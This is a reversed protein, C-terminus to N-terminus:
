PCFWAVPSISGPLSITTTSNEVLWRIAWSTKDAFASSPTAPFAGNGTYLMEAPDGATDTGPGDFRLTSKSPLNPVTTIGVEGVVTFQNAGLM